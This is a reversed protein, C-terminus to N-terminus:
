NLNVVAGKLTATGSAQLNLQGSAKLTINGNAQLDMNGSVQLKFNSDAKIEIEGNSQISAKSGNDDLSFVLGGNTKITIKKNADDMILQQNGATVIEIKDDANDYVTIRHGKRSCWTRVLPIEGSPASDSKPPIADKGNWLGGLVFPQDFDGHEFIVLVEDGVEPLAFFGAKPGGGPGLLRAWDSEADETLWPFKVKVRGLQNPDDTNTVIASVVGPWRDLPSFSGLQESIMGTRAGRVSFTTKLGEATYQHRANTVLYKGSFRKGLGQLEIVRGAQVDPHRFAVGEADVFSGSLEDLRAAALNDAEAQSIVPQNVIVMKGTGFAGAWTAGDKPEDINPYLNGSQARGVIAKKAQVDWGRVMVEDVQEALSLRPQFSLLDQGWILSIGSPKNAPPKRFYLKGESVFCEYGIRWARQVLFELDSQNHQFIHDYVTSTTDVETKLGLNQAIENALDSDKKNLFAKSKTERFLRHSKDYGRVILQVIMGKAFVPEIATIEGEILLCSTGSETEAELRVSKTLDFPGKDMLEMDSDYFRISFMNPLHSNQDVIVEVLKQMIERQVETGDLKIHIQSTIVTPKV